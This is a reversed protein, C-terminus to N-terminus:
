FYVIYGLAIKVTLNSGWRGWRIVTAVSGQSVWFVSTIDCCSIVLLLQMLHIMAKDFQILPMLHKSIQPTICCHTYSVIRSMSSRRFRKICVQNSKSSPMNISAVISWHCRGDSITYMSTTSVKFVHESTFTWRYCESMWWFMKHFQWHLEICTVAINYKVNVASATNV